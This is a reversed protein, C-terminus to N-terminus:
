SATFNYRDNPSSIRSIWETLRCLFRTHVPLKLRVISIAFSPCLSSPSVRPLLTLRSDKLLIFLTSDPLFFLYFPHRPILSQQGLKVTTVTMKPSM